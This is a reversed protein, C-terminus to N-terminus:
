GGVGVGGGFLGTFFHQGMAVMQKTGCEKGLLKECKKENLM